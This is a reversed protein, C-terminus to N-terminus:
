LQDMHVVAVWLVVLRKRTMPPGAAMQHIVAEAHAHAGEMLPAITLTACSASLHVMNRHINVDKPLTEAIVHDM